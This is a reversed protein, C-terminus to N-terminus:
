DARKVSLPKLNLMTREGPTLFTRNSAAYGLITSRPMTNWNSEPEETELERKQEDLKLEERISAVKEKIEGHEKLLLELKRGLDVSSVSQDNDTKLDESVRGHVIKEFLKLANLQRRLIMNERDVEMCRRTACESAEKQFEKTSREVKLAKAVLSLHSAVDDEYHEELLKKTLKVPCGFTKYRCAHAKFEM